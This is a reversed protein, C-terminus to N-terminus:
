ACLLDNRRLPASSSIFADHKLCEKGRFSVYQSGDYFGVLFPREFGGEQSVDDKVLSELKEAQALLSKREDADIGEEEAKDRKEQAHKLTTEKESKSELDVVGFPNRKPEGKLPLLLDLKGKSM